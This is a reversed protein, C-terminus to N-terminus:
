TRGNEALLFYRDFAFAFMRGLASRGSKGYRAAPRHVKGRALPDDICHLLIIM